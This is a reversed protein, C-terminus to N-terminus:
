YTEKLLQVLEKNGLFSEFSISKEHNSRNIAHLQGKRYESEAMEGKEMDYSFQKGEFKGKRFSSIHCFVGKQCIVTWGHLQGEFVNCNAM